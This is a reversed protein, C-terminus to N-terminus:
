GALGEEYFDAACAIVAKVWPCGLAIAGLGSPYQRTKLASETSAGM